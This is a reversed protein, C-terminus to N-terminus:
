HALPRTCIQPVRKTKAQYYNQDQNLIQLVCLLVRTTKKSYQKTPSDQKEKLVAQHSSRPKRQTSSPSLIKTKM